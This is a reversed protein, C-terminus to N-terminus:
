SVARGAELENQRVTGRYAQVAMGSGEFTLFDVFYSKLFAFNFAMM